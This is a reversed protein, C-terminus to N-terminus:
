EGEDDDEQLLALRIASQLLSLEQLDLTNYLVGFQSLSDM